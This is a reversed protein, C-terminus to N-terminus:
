ATPASTATTKVGSYVGSAILGITIGALITLTVTASPLLFAALIGLGLSTLPAWQTPLGSSKAISVVGIVLASLLLQQGSLFATTLDM